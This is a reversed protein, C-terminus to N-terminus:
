PETGIFEFGGAKRVTSRGGDCGVLWRIRLTQGGARITVDDDSQEYGEVGFGRRIEVGMATARTALVSEIHAMDSAMGASAPSPLRYTWQATDVRDQYFQIGAFHGGARRSQQMWHPVTASHHGAQDNARPPTALDGLLGRRYLAEVTPISLGRMGFPLRKLPSQPDDAQELVLVSLDALRLECALLLGVLGAGAIVVDYIPFDNM